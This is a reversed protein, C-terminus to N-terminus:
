TFILIVALVHVFAVQWDATLLSINALKCCPCGHGESGCYISYLNHM